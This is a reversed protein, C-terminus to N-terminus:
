IFWISLSVKTERSTERRLSFCWFSPSFWCFCISYRRTFVSELFKWWDTLAVLSLYIISASVLTLFDSTVRGSSRVRIFLVQIRFWLELYFISLFVVIFFCGFWVQRRNGSTRLSSIVVRHSLYLILWESKIRRAIESNTWIWVSLGLFLPLSINTQNTLYMRSHFHIKTVWPCVVSMVVWFVRNKGLNLTKKPKDIFSYFFTNIRVVSRM